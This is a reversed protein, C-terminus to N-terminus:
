ILTYQEGERRTFAVESAEPSLDQDEDKPSDMTVEKDTGPTQEGEVDLIV